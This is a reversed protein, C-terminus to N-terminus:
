SDAYFATLGNTQTGGITVSQGIGSAAYSDDMALTLGTGTAGNVSANWSLAGGSPTEFTPASTAGNSQLVKGSAGLALGVITGSGDKYFVTHNALSALEEVTLIESPTLEASTRAM